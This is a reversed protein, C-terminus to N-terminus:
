RRQSEVNRSRALRESLIQAVDYGFVPHKSGFCVHMEEDLGIAEAPEELRLEGLAPNECGIDPRDKLRFTRYYSGGKLFAVNLSLLLRKSVGLRVPAHEATVLRILSATLLIASTMGGSPRWKARSDLGVVETRVISMRM